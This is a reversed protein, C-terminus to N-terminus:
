RTQTQPKSSQPPSPQTLPHTKYTPKTPPNQLPFQPLRKPNQPNGKKVNAASILKNLQHKANAVLEEPPKSYRTLIEYPPPIPEDPHVARWRVAQDIRHLVPSYTESMPMYETPESHPTLIASNSKVPIM